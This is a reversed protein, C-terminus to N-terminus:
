ARRRSAAVGALALGALLLGAELRFQGSAIATSTQFDGPSTATATSHSHLAAGEVADGAADVVGYNGADITTSTSVFGINGQYQQANYM